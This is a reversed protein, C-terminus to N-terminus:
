TAGAWSAPRWDIVRAPTCDLRYQGPGAGEAVSVVLLHEGDPMRVVDGEAPALGDWGVSRLVTM